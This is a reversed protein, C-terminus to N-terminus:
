YAFRKAFSAAVSLAEHDPQPGAVSRALDFVTAVVEHPSGPCGFCSLALATALAAPLRSQAFAQEIDYFRRALAVADADSPAAAALAASVEDIPGARLVHRRATQPPAAALALARRVLEAPTGRAPMLRVIFKYVLDGAVGAQRMTRKLEVFRAVGAELPEFALLAKASARVAPTDHCGAQLLLARAHALSRAARDLDFSGGEAARRVVLAATHPATKGGPDQRELARAAGLARGFANGLHEPRADVKLLSALVHERGKPVSGVAKRLAAVQGAFAHTKARAKRFAKLFAGIEHPGYRALRPALAALAEAGDASLAYLRPGLDPRGAPPSAVGARTRAALALREASRPLSLLGRLRKAWVRDDEELALTARSAWQRHWDSRLRQDLEAVLAGLADASLPPRGEFPAPYRSSLGEYRGLAELSPGDLCVVLGQKELEGLERADGDLAGRALALMMQYARGTKMM